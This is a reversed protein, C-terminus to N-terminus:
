DCFRGNNGFQLSINNLSNLNVKDSFGKLKEVADDAKGSLEKAKEIKDSIWPPLYSTLSKLDLDNIEKLKKVIVCAALQILAKVIM